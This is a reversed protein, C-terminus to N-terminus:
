KQSKPVHRIENKEDRAEIKLFIGNPWFDRNWGSSEFIFHHSYIHPEGKSASGCVENGDNSYPVSHQMISKFNDEISKIRPEQAM